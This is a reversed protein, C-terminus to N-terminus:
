NRALSIGTGSHSHKHPAGHSHSKCTYKLIPACSRQVLELSKASVGLLQYRVFYFVLVLPLDKSHWEMSSENDAASDVNGKGRGYIPTINMETVEGKCVPCEKTNSHVHLCQYLCVWCFLHGCPTVVSEKAMELCINCEFDSVNNSRKDAKQVAESSNININNNDNHSRNLNQKLTETPRESNSNATANSDINLSKQLLAWETTTQTYLYSFLICMWVQILGIWSPMYM